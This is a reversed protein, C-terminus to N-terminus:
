VYQFGGDAPKTVFYSKRFPFPITKRDFYKVKLLQVYSTSASKQPGSYYFITYSCIFTNVILESPKVTNPKSTDPKATDDPTSTSIHLEVAKEAACQKAEKNNSKTSGLSIHRIRLQSEAIFDVIVKHQNYIMCLASSKGKSVINKYYLSLPNRYYQNVVNM